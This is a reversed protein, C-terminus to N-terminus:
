PYLRQCLWNSNNLRFQVRDHLRYKNGIWFEVEDPILKYGGWNEPCPIAKGKWKQEAARILETLDTGDPITESQRSIWQSLQSEFPRTKWYSESVARSTREVRGRFHVQQSLPDWYFTAALRPNAEIEQAKRSSYNTFFTLGQEDFDKLLVARSSPQGSKAVTAIVMATPERITPTQKAVELWTAFEKLPNQCQLLKLIPNM